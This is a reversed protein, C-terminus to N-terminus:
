KKDRIVVTGALKDHWGQKRKDFAVWLFGLGFPILALYYALYRGIAQGKSLTNGTDADVVKASFMMKGPTAEKTLWFVIVAVPFLLWSILNGIPGLVIEGTWFAKGYIVMFFPLVIVTVLITDVISAIARAWFGVYEIEDAQM